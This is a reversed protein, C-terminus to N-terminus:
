PATLSATGAEPGTAISTLMTITGALVRANQPLLAVPGEAPGPPGKSLLNGNLPLRCFSQLATEVEWRRVIRGDMDVLCIKGTGDVTASVHEYSERFPTFGPFCQDPEYETVGTQRSM